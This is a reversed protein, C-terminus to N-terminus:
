APSNHKSKQCTKAREEIKRIHLLLIMILMRAFRPVTPLQSEIWQLDGELLEGETIHEALTLRDTQPHHPQRSLDIM